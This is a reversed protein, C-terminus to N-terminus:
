EGSRTSDGEKQRAASDSRELAVTTRTTIQQKNNRRRKKMKRNTWIRPHEVVRGKRERGYM